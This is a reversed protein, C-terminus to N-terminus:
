DVREREIKGVFFFERTSSSWEKRCRNVFFDIEKLLM